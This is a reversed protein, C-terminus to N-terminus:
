TDGFPCPGVPINQQISDPKPDNEHQGEAVALLFIEKLNKKKKKEQFCNSSNLISAPTYCLVISRMKM